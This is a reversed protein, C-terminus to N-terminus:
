LSLFHLLCFQLYQKHSNTLIKLSDHCVQVLAGYLKMYSELRKLYDETSELKESDERYGISRFYAEKSQFISQPPLLFFGSEVADTGAVNTFSKYIIKLIFLKLYNKCQALQLVAM